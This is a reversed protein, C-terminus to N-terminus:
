GMGFYEDLWKQLKAELMKPFIKEFIKIAGEWYHAGEVWQQKLMMGTDANPDYVFRDGRWRGRV